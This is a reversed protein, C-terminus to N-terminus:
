LCPVIPCTMNIEIDCVAGSNEYIEDIAFDEITHTSIVTQTTIM